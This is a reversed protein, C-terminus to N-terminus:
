ARWSIFGWVWWWWGCGLFHMWGAHVVEGAEGGGEVVLAETLGGEAREEVVGM